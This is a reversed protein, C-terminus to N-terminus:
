LDAEKGSHFYPWHIIWQALSHPCLPQWKLIHIQVPPLIKVVIDYQGIICADVGYIKKSFTDYKKNM